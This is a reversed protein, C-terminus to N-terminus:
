KRSSAPIREGEAAKGTDGGGSSSCASVLLSGALLTAMLIGSKRKM